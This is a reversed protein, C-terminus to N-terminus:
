RLSASPRLSSASWREPAPSRPEAERSCPFCPGCRALCRAEDRALVENLGRRTAAGRAFPSLPDEWARTASAVAPELRSSQEDDKEIMELIDVLRAADM